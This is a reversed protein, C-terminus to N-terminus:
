LDLKSAQYDATTEVMIRYLSKGAKFLDAFSWRQRLDFRHGKCTYIRLQDRKADVSDLLRSLQQEIRSLATEWDSLDANLEAELLASYLIAVNGNEATIEAFDDPIQSMPLDALSAFGRLLTHSGFLATYHAEVDPCIGFGSLWIGNVGPENHTMTLQNMEEQYFLMQIENLLSRWYGSDRGSPM